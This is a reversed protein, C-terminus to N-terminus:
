GRVLQIIKMVFEVIRMLIPFMLCTLYVLVVFLAALFLFSLVSMARNNATAVVGKTASFVSPIGTSLSGSLGGVSVPTGSADLVDETGVAQMTAVAQNFTDVLTEVASLDIVATPTITAGTASPTPSLAATPTATIPQATYTPWITPSPLAVTAFVPVAWPLASCPNYISGCSAPPAITALASRQENTLTSTITPTPTPTETDVGRVIHGGSFLLIVAILLLCPLYKM